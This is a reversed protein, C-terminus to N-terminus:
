SLWLTFDEDEDEEEQELEVGDVVSGELELGALVGIEGADNSAGGLSSLSTQRLRHGGRRRLSISSLKVLSVIKRVVEWSGSHSGNM